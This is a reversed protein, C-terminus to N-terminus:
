QPLVTVKIAGSHRDVSAAFAESAQELPRVALTEDYDTPSGHDYGL